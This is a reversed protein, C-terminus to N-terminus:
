KKQELFLTPMEDVKIGSYEAKIKLADLQLTAASVVSKAVDTIAKSRDIESQLKEGSLDENNLRELQLFLHDNLDTLKNKSMQETGGLARQHLTDM